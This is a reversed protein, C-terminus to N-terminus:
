PDYAEVVAGIAIFLVIVLAVMIFTVAASTASDCFMEKVTTDESGVSPVVCTARVTNYFTDFFLATLVLLALV